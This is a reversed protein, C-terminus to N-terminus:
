SSFITPDVLFEGLDAMILELDSEKLTLRDLAKQQIPNFFSDVGGGIGLLNALGNAVHVVSTLEVHDQEDSLSHHFSIAAM